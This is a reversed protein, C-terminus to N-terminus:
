SHKKDKGHLKYFEKIDKRYDKEVEVEQVSQGSKLVPRISPGGATANEYTAIVQGDKDKVINVKMM